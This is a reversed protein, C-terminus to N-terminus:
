RNITPRVEIKKLQRKAVGNLRRKFPSEISERQVRQRLSNSVFEPPCDIASERYPERLSRRASGRLSSRSLGFVVDDLSNRSANDESDTGEIYISDRLSSRQTTGPVFQQSIGSQRSSRPQRLTASDKSTGPQEYNIEIRIRNESTRDITYHLPQSEGLYTQTRGQGGAFHTQGNVNITFSDARRLQVMGAVASSGADDGVGCDVALGRRLHVSSDGDVSPHYDISSNTSPQSTNESLKDGHLRSFYCLFFPSM